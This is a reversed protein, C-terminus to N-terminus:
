IYMYLVFSFSYFKNWTLLTEFLLVNSKIQTPILTLEIYLIYLTINAHMYDISLRYVSLIYLGVILIQIWVEPKNDRGVLYIYLYM